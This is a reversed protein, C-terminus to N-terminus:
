SPCPSAIAGTRGSRLSRASLNPQYGLEDIAAQVRARTAPGSTRTTTSSTRSPRSRSAPSRAVDHLTVSM